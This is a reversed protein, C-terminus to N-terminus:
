AKGIFKNIIISHIGKMLKNNNKTTVAQKEM